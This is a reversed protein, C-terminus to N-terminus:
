GRVCGYLAPNKNLLSDAFHVNLRSLLNINLLCLKKGEASKDSERCFQVFSGKSLCFLVVLDTFVVIVGDDVPGLGGLGFMSQKISLSPSELKANVM